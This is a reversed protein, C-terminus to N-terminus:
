SINRGVDGSTDRHGMLAPFESWTWLKAVGDCPEVESVFQWSFEGPNDPAVLTALTAERGVGDNGTFVRGLAGELAEILVQTSLPKASNVHGIALCEPDGEWAHVTGDPVYDELGFRVDACGQDQASRLGEIIQGITIGKHKFASSM